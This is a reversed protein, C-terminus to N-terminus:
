LEDHWHDHHQLGEHQVLKGNEDYTVPHWSVLAKALALRMDDPLVQLEPHAALAAVDGNHEERLKYLADPTHANLAKVVKAYPSALPPGDDHHHKHSVLKTRVLWNAIAHRDEFHNVHENNWREKVESHMQHNSDLALNHIHTNHKAADMIADAAVNTLQNYMLTLEGLFAPQVVPQWVTAPTGRIAKALALGGAEGIANTDIHLSNLGRNVSLAEAFAMAGKDSILNFYLDLRRLAKNKKLGEALGIAGEDGIGNTSLSLFQLADNNALARGIAAAGKDYVYNNHMALRKLHTNNELGAALAIADEVGVRTHHLDLFELDPNHHLADGLWIAERHGIHKMHTVSVCGTIDRAKIEEEGCERAAAQLVLVAVLVGARSWHFPM